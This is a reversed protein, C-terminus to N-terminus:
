PNFILRKSITKEKSLITDYLYIDVQFNFPDNEAALNRLELLFVLCRGNDDTFSGSLHWLGAGPFGPLTNHSGPNDSGNYDIEATGNEGQHLSGIMMIIAAATIIAFNKV